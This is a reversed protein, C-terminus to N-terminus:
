VRCTTSPLAKVASLRKRGTEPVEVSQTIDTLIPQSIGHHARNNRFTIKAECASIHDYQNWPYPVKVSKLYMCKRHLSQSNNNDLSYNSFYYVFYIHVVYIM